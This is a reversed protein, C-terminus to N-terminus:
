NFCVISQMLNLYVIIVFCFKNKFTTVTGATKSLSYRATDKIGATYIRFSLYCSCTVCDYCIAQVYLISRLYFLSSMCFSMLFIIPMVNYVSKLPPLPYTPYRIHILGSLDNILAYLLFFIHFILFFYHVFLMFHELLLCLHLILAVYRAKTLMTKM